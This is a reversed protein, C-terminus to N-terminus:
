FLVSPTPFLMTNDSSNSLHSQRYKLPTEGTEKKFLNIFHTTNDIGVTEGISVITDNTELLLVKAKNIRVNNLYKLPSVKFTASFERCLRYKNIKLEESLGELTHFEDYRTDLIQKLKTLYAPISNDLLDNSSQKTLLRVFIYQFIISELFLSNSDDYALFTDLRNLGSLIFGEMDFHNSYFLENAPNKYLATAYSDVVLGRIFYIHVTAERSLTKLTYSNNKYALIVLGESGESVKNQCSFSLKGKSVYACIYYDGTKIEIEVNRSFSITGGQYIYPLTDDIKEFPNKNYDSIDIASPLANNILSPKIFTFHENMFDYNISTIM